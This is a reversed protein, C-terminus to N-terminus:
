RYFKFGKEIAEEKILHNDNLVFGKELEIVNM